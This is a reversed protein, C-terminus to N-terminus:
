CIKSPYDKFKLKFDDITKDIGHTKIYTVISLNKNEM